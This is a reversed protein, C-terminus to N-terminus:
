DNPEKTLISFGLYVTTYDTMKIVGGSEVSQDLKKVFVESEEIIAPIMKELHSPAFAPNFMTRLKKWQEGDIVVLSYAGVVPKLASYSYKSKPLNVTQM